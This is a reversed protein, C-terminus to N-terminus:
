WGRFTSRVAYAFAYVAARFWLWWYAPHRKNVTLVATVEHKERDHEWKTLKIYGPLKGM